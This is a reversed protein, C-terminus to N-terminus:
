NGQNLAGTQLSVLEVVFVLDANPPIIGGAGAEGYGLHSPIFLIAKDGVKMQQVGEKFGPIMPANPSYEMQMPEYGGQAKRRPNFIDWENAVDERSTDFLM